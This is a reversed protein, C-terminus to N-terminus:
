KRCHMGATSTGMNCSLDKMCPMLCLEKNHVGCIAGLTTCPQQAPGAPTGCATQSMQQQGQPQLGSAYCPRVSQVAKLNWHGQHQLRAQQQDVSCLHIYSLTPLLCCRTTCNQQMCCCATVAAQMMCHQKVAFLNTCLLDSKQQGGQLEHLHRTCVVDIAHSHESCPVAKAAQLQDAHPQMAAAMM